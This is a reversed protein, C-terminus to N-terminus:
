MKSQKERTKWFNQFFKLHGLETLAVGYDM